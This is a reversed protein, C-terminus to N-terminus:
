TFSFRRMEDIQRRRLSDRNKAEQLIWECATDSIIGRQRATALASIYDEETVESKHYSKRHHSNDSSNSISPNSFVTKLQRANDVLTSELMYRQDCREICLDCREKLMQPEGDTQIPLPKKVKIRVSKAQALLNPNALGVKIQGLHFAGRVYCVDILGDNYSSECFRIGGLLDRMSSTKGNLRPWTSVSSGYNLENAVM